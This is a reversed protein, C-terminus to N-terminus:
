TILPYSIFKAYLLNPTARPTSIPTHTINVIYNLHIPAPEGHSVNGQFNPLPMLTTQSRLHSVFLTLQHLPRAQLGTRPSATASSPRRPCTRLQIFLPSTKAFCSHLHTVSQRVSSPTRTCISTANAWRSTMVVDRRVEALDVFFIVNMRAVWV